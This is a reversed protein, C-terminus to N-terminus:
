NRGGRAKASKPQLKAGQSHSAKASQVRLNSRATSGGKTLPKKHDVVKGDGKAVKGERMLERRAKNRKAREKVREPREALREKTYDRSM